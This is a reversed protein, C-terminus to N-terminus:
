LNNEAALNNNKNIFLFWYTESTRINICKPQLNIKNIYIRKKKVIKM